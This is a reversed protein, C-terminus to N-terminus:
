IIRRLSLYQTGPGDTENASHGDKDHGENRGCGIIIAARLVGGLLGPLTKEFPQASHVATRDRFNREIDDIFRSLFPLIFGTGSKLWGIYPFQEAAEFTKFRQLDVAGHQDIQLELDLLPILFGEDDRFLQSKACFLDLPM